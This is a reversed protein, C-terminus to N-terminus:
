QKKSREDHRKRNDLMMRRYRATMGWWFSAFNGIIGHFWYGHGQWIYKKGLQLLSGKVVKEPMPAILTGSKRKYLNSVVYFPTVVLFDVGSDWCEIHLSRSFQTIFAKTASYIALYPGVHNGSGSSVSLVAGNKKQKMYKMASRTMFVTSFINCHILDEIEADSFEELTKPIDNAIGVNNVLLAIGGDADMSKCKVDFTDYFPKRADTKVDTFDYAIYDVKIDTHKSRLEKQQEGLKDASRSILLMDMGEKALYDAYAKGIGSTCGTVVCWKGYAKLEKAPLLCRRYISLLSRWLALLIAFLGTIKVPDSEGSLRLFVRFMLGLAALRTALFFALNKVKIDLPIRDYLRKLM